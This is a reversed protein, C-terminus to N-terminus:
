FYKSEFEFPRGLVGDPKNSVKIATAGGDKGIPMFKSTYGYDNEQTTTITNTYKENREKFTTQYNNITPPSEGYKNSENLSFKNYQTNLHTQSDIDKPRDPTINTNLQSDTLNALSELSNNSFMHKTKNIM